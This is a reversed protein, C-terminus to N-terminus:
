RLRVGAQRAIRKLARHLLPVRKTITGVRKIFKRRVLAALDEARELRARLPALEGQLVALQEDKIAIDLKAYRLTEHTQELETMRERLERELAALQERAQAESAVADALRQEVEGLREELTRVYGEAEARAREAHLARRQLAEGLALVQDGHSTAGPALVYVFQYTNADEGSLALELAEPPFAEPEIPIETETLGAITRMRDVVSLGAREIMTELGARDFFRLHTRDLLGKDTYAFRGSLLALRLAAHTVNPVSVIIRGTPRLLAAATKLTKVPDRLHELVDLLLVYDFELGRLEAALDITEVDDTLVRECVQSAAAAADPDVEVGVVRSGREVLTRAVSGDAAGIDLVLSGAPVDLVALTHSSNVNELDIEATYRSGAV